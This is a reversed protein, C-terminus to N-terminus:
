LTYLCNHKWQCNSKTLIDRSSQYNSGSHIDRNNDSHLTHRMYLDIDYNWELVGREFRYFQNTKMKSRVVIITTTTDFPSFFVKLNRYWINYASMDNIKIFVLAMLLYVILTLKFFIYKEIFDFCLFHHYWM